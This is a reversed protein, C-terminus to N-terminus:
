KWQGPVWVWGDPAQRWHGPVWQAEARPPEAWYGGHWVYTKGEPRWDEDVWVDNPSPAPPRKKIVVKEHRPKVKVVMQAKTEACAFLFLLALASNRIIKKM